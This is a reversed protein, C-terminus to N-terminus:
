CYGGHCVDAAGELPVRVKLEKGEVLPVKHLLLASREIAFLICPDGALLLAEYLCLYLAGFPIHDTHESFLM